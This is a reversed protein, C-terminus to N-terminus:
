KEGESELGYPKPLPMWATVEDTTPYSLDIWPRDKYSERSGWYRSVRMYGNKMQVLVHESPEIFGDDCVHEKPLGETVPIWGSNIKEEACDLLMQVAKDFEMEMDSHSLTKAIVDRAQALTMNAVRERHEKLYEEITM